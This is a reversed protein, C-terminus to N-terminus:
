KGGENPALRVSIEGTSLTLPGEPTEVVLHGERTIDVARGRGKEQGRVLWVVERGLVFSRRRYENWEEESLRGTLSRLRRIIEAALAERDIGRPDAADSLAGAESLEAPFGGPPEVCNVGIGIVVYLGETSMGSECLIGAVKKGNKYLDNIWKIATEVGTVKEIALAAAVAAEATLGEPPVDAPFRLLVSIYMGTGSPSFFQRGLRGRGATQRDAVLATQGPAGEKALAKLVDNTSTIDDFGAVYGGAERRIREFDLM